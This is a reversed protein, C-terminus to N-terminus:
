LRKELVVFPQFYNKLVREWGKRGTIRMATCDETRAYSELDEILHIWERMRTGGIARVVCFKADRTAELSTALSAVIKVDDVIVWLQALHNGFDQVLEAFTSGLVGRQYARHLMPAVVPWFRSLKDHPIQWLKV